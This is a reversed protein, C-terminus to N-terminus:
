NCAFNFLDEAFKEYNSLQEAKLLLDDPIPEHLTKIIASAFDIPDNARAYMPLDGYLERNIENDVCVMRVNCKLAEITPFGVGEALSPWLLLDSTARNIQVTLGRYITSGAFNM